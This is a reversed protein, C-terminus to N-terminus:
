IEKMKIRHEIINMNIRDGYDFILGEDKIIIRYRFQIRIFFGYSTLFLDM